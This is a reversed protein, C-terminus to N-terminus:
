IEPPTTSADIIEPAEQVVVQLTVTKTKSWKKKAEIIITNLGNNLTLPQKFLGDTQVIIQQGNITVQTEAQTQGEITVSTQTTLLRAQPSYITLNPPSFIKSLGWGLYILLSITAVTIAAYKIRRPTIIIRTVPETPQHKDKQETIQDFIKLEDELTNEFVSRKLGLYNAYRRIYSRTYIKGPLDEYRGQELAELYKKNIRTDKEVKELKYHKEERSTSLIEAITQRSGIEKSTFSTM